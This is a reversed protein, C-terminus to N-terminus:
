RGMLNSSGCPMRFGPRRYAAHLHVHLNGVVGDYRNVNDAEDDKDNWYKRMLGSRRMSFRRKMRISPATTNSNHVTNKLRICRESAKEKECQEPQAQREVKKTHHRWRLMSGHLGIEGGLLQAIRIGRRGILHQAGAHMAAEAGRGTRGEQQQAVFEVARAPADVQDLVHQLGAPRGGLLHYAM